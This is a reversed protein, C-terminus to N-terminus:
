APASGIATCVETAHGVMSVIAGDAAYVIRGQAAVLTGQDTWVTGNSGRAVVVGTALDVTAPGSSNPTYSAGTSLNTYSVHVTGTYSIRQVDGAADVFEHLVEDYDFTVRVPDTCTARDVFSGSGTDHATLPPAAEATAPLTLVSGLMVAAALVPAHM